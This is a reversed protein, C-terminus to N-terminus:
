GWFVLSARLAEWCKARDCHPGCCSHGRRSTPLVAAVTCSGQASELRPLFCTPGSPAREVLHPPLSPHSSLVLELFSFPQHQSFVAQEQCIGTGSSLGLAQKNSMSYRPGACQRLIARGASGIVKEGALGKSWAAKSPWQQLSCKNLREAVQLRVKCSLPVQWHGPKGAHPLGLGSSVAGQEHGECAEGRM